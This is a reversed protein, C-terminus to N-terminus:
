VIIPFSVVGATKGDELKDSWFLLNVTDDNSPKIPTLFLPVYTYATNQIYITREGNKSGVM